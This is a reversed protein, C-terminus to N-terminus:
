YTSRGAATRLLTTRREVELEHWQGNIEIRITETM